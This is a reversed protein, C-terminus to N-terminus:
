GPYGEMLVQLDNIVEGVASCVAPSIETDFTNDAPQIGLLAVQCGLEARLFQTLLSLPLTHTNASVGSIDEETLWCVCGPAQDMQAADILLVLDPRFRRLAGTCSEPAPGADLVLLPPKEWTSHGASLGEPTVKHRDEQHAEAARLSRAIVVGAADDGRLEQGIGLIAVRPAREPRQLSRLMATLSDQWSLRSM